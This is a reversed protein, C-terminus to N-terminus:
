RSVIDSWQRLWADRHATIDAPSVTSPHQPQVAYKSWTPPLPTGRRVPFVYMSDPLAKQVTPSLLFDVFAQAGKPNAAGTLVGAYEVQRFCTDLLATTTSAGGGKPITFAPDSDYSVVVPYTGHHGGQTFSTDFAQTWDSTVKAGNDLLKTWYAPWGDGYQAITALLFAMGPSSTTAGPLVLQGHYAPDTLDALSRPPALHHAAYWTKDVVVCVDGTDVPTLRHDSGPLAYRSAGPPLTADYPAFVDADLARTAFTNDVGFAVDGTPDGQTLVLKNTLTGADGSAHVVLHYGSQQEFAAIVKKPLVFSDHTVLV